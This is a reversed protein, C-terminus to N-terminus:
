ASITLLGPILNIFPSKEIGQKAFGRGDFRFDFYLEPQYLCLM